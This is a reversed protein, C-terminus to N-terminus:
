GERLIRHFEEPTVVRVSNYCKLSLLDDDRTILYDAAAAIACAIVMDDSPDRVVRITPVRVVANGLEAVDTCFREVATDAYLYRKRIRKSTLLVRRTEELISECVFLSFAGVAAARLLDVSAGGTAPTLFASILITSDLVAKAM